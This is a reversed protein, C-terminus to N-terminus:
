AVRESTACLADVAKDLAALLRANAKANIHPDSNYNGGQLKGGGGDVSSQAFASQAAFKNAWAGGMYANRMYTSPGGGITEHPDLVGVPVRRGGATRLGGAVALTHAVHAASM